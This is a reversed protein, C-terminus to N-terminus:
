YININYIGEPEKFEFNHILIDKVDNYVINKQYLPRQIHSNTNYSHSNMSDDIKNPNVDLNIKSYQNPTIDINNSPDSVVMKNKTLVVVNYISENELGKIYYEILDNQEELVYIELFEPISPHNQSSLIIYYKDIPYDSIPKIWTLKIGKNGSFGKIKLRSPKFTNLKYNVEKNWECNNSSCQDCMSKCIGESCNPVKKCDMICIDRTKGQPIYDNYCSLQDNQFHEINFFFVILILIIVCLCIQIM